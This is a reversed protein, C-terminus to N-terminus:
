TRRRRGAYQTGCWTELQEPTPHAQEWTGYYAWMEFKSRDLYLMGGPDMGHGRYPNFRAQAVFEQLRLRLCSRTVEEHLVLWAEAEYTAAADLVAKARLFGIGHDYTNTSWSRSPKGKDALLAWHLRGYPLRLYDRGITGWGAATLAEIMLRGGEIKGRSLRWPETQRLNLPEAASM